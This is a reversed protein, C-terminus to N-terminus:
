YGRRLREVMVLARWLLPVAAVIATIAVLTENANM